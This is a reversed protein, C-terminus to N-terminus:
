RRGVLHACPSEKAACLRLCGSDDVGIKLFSEYAGLNNFIIIEDREARFVSHFLGSFHRHFPLFIYDVVAVYHM